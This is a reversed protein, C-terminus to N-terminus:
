VKGYKKFVLIGIIVLVLSFIILVALDGWIRLDSLAIGNFLSNLADSAYHLPMFMSIVKTSDPLPYLGAAFIQQPFIFIWVIGGAAKANKAITATILGFGISSLSFIVMFVFALMIGETAGDARYGMLFTLLGIIAVQLIAMSMNSLLHSGIFESATTTTTNIRKLLGKERDDSFSQAVPIMMFLGSIAFLGPVVYEFVTMGIDEEVVSGFALGFLMTLAIPLLLIVFLTTPVRILNKYQMKVLAFVRQSKM